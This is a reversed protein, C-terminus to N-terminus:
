SESSSVPPPLRKEAVILYGEDIAELVMAHARRENYGLFITSKIIADPSVGHDIDLNNMARSVPSLREPLTKKVGVYRKLLQGDFHKDFIPDFTNSMSEMRKPTQLVQKTAEDDHDYFGGIELGFSELQGKQTISPSDVTIIACIFSETQVATIVETIPIATWKPEDMSFETRFHSIASIFSSLLAEQFGGKIIKSYIPLGVNRHIVLVGILNKANEIRSELSLLELNWRTMTSIYFRRTLTAGAIIAFVAFAGLIGARIAVEFMPEASPVHVDITIENSDFFPLSVTVVIVFSGTGILSTNFDAEFWGRALNPNFTIEQTSWNGLITVDELIPNGNDQDYVYVAATFQESSDVEISPTHAFINLRHHVEFSSYSFAVESGNSWSVIVNWIGPTSNSPGLTNGSSRIVSSNTDDIMETFWVSGLPNVWNVELDSTSSFTDAFIIVECRLRDGPRYISEERWSTSSTQVQTSVAQAYNPGDFSIGWWGVSDVTGSPVEIFHTDTISQDTVDAGFPDTITANEWDSPFYARIGVDEAVPYPEIYTYSSLEVSEGLHANYAVGLEELSTSASSNCRKTMRSVRASYDFAITTNSSFTFPIIVTEWYKFDAFLSSSGNGSLSIIGLPQLIVQLQVEECSPNQSSILSIDDIMFGVFQGNASDGNLDPDTEPIEVYTGSTLIKLSLRAEFATLAYPLNVAMPGVSYWVGRQTINTPDISWNWLVSSGNMIEFTFEFIDSFNQGIPGRQYLYNMSFQFSESSDNNFVTQSWFIRTDNYHRYGIPDGFAYGENELTIYKRGTDVYSSRQRGNTYPFSYSYLDRQTTWGTAFYNGDGLWDVNVGPSG